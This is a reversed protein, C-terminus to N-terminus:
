KPNGKSLFEKIRIQLEYQEEHLMALLAAKDVVYGFQTFVLPLKWLRRKRIAVNEPRHHTQLPVRQCGVMPHNDKLFRSIKEFESAEVPSGDRDGYDDPLDTALGNPSGQRTHDKNLDFDKRNGSSLHARTTRPICPLQINNRREPQEKTLSDEVLSTLEELKHRSGSTRSSCSAASHRRVELRISEKRPAVEEGSLNFEPDTFGRKFVKQKATIVRDRSFGASLPRPKTRETSNGVIVYRQLESPNSQSETQDSGGSDLKTAMRSDDNLKTRHNKFSQERFGCGNNQQLSHHCSHDLPSHDSKCSLQRQPVGEPQSQLLISGTSGRRRSSGSSEEKQIKEMMKQIRFDKLKDLQRQVDAKQKTRKYVDREEMLNLTQITKVLRLEASRNAREAIGFGIKDLVNGQVLLMAANTSSTKHQAKTSKDYNRNQM